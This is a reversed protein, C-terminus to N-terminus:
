DVWVEDGVRLLGTGEVSGYIGLNQQAERVISRLISKDDSLQGQARTVAGCRPATGVCDIIVEGLRIQKGLWSQEVLGEMGPLTEIVLNPRFREVHWDAASNIQQMHRLSATTLLHFPSVLFFTGPLSVFEQMQAPLNDLDPLPEGPERAFTAKLENLWTHADAKHRRYFDENEALPRLAQLASTHGILGSVQQHILPDDSGLRSGDPFTIDVNGSLNGQANLRQQARCQLLGPRFKCSQIEQRKLDQVAWTRDGLLGGASLHCEQVSEGAMGKVPYRWISQITGVKQM